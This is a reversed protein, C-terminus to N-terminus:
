SRDKSPIKTMFETEEFEFRHGGGYERWQSRDIPAVGTRRQVSGEETYGNELPSFTTEPLTNEGSTCMDIAFLASM